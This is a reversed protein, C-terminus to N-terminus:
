RARRRHTEQGAWALFEKVLAGDPAPITARKNNLQPQLGTLHSASAASALDVLTVVFRDRELRHVRFLLPSPLRDAPKGDHRARPVVVTKAGNLSRFYFPLPLGFAARDVSAPAGPQGRLADKVETYDPLPPLGQDQRRLTSRFDQFLRGAFDLADFPHEFTTPLARLTAIGDLSRLEPLARSAPHVPFGQARALERFVLTAQDLGQLLGNLLAKRDAFPQLPPGSWPLGGLDVIEVSGWGRRARAGVGGFHGWLWLTAALARALPGDAAERHLGLPLTILSGEPTEVAQPDPGPGDFIGYGLYRLGAWQRRDPSPRQTIEGGLPHGVLLRSGGETSGFLSAEMTWLAQLAAERDFGPGPKLAAAAAYRFWQRWVGRLSPPRLPTHPDVRRPRAGGVYAPTLLRLRLRWRPRSVTDPM